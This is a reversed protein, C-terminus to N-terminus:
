KRTILTRKDCCHVNKSQRKDSMKSSNTGVRSMIAMMETHVTKTKRDMIEQQIRRPSHTVLPPLLSSLPPFPSVTFVPVLFVGDGHYVGPGIVYVHM